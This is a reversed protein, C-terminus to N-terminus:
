LLLATEAASNAVWLPFRTAVLHYRERCIPPRQIAAVSCLLRYRHQLPPRHERGDVDHFGDDHPEQLAGAGGGV